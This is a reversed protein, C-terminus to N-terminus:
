GTSAAFRPLRCGLGREKIMGIIQEETFRGKRM